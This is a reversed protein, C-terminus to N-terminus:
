KFEVLEDKCGAILFLFFGFVFFRARSFYKDQVPFDHQKVLSGQGKLDIASRLSLQCSTVSIM